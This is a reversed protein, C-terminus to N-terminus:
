YIPPLEQTTIPISSADGGLDRLYTEPNNNVVEAACKNLRLAADDAADAGGIQPTDNPDDYNAFYCAPDLVDNRFGLTGSTRKWLIRRAIVAGNIQLQTANCSGVELSSPWEGPFGTTSCTDLIGTSDPNSSDPFAVLTADVSQVPQEIYVNGKHAILMLSPIAGVTYNQEYAISGTITIDSNQAVLTKRQGQNVITSGLRVDTSVIGIGEGPQSLFSDVDAQSALLQPSSDNTQSQTIQTQLDVCPLPPNPLSSYFRGYESVSYNAFLADKISDQNGSVGRAYGYNGRFTNVGTAKAGIDGSAFVAYQAASSGNLANLVYEGHYGNTIIAANKAEQSAECTGTDSFAAGSYVDGGTVAIYPLNERYKIEFGCTDLQGESQHNLRWDFNIDAPSSPATFVAPAEFTQENNSPSGVGLIVAGYPPTVYGPITVESAGLGNGIPQLAVRNNNPASGVPWANYAINKVNFRVRFTDGPTFRASGPPVFAGGNISVGDISCEGAWSRVVNLNIELPSNKTNCVRRGASNKGQLNAPEVQSNYVCILQNSPPFENVMTDVVNVRIKYSGVPLSGLGGVNFAKHLPLDGPLNNVNPKVFRTKYFYSSNYDLLLPTTGTNLGSTSVPSRNDIQYTAGTINIATKGIHSARSFDFNGNRDVIYECNAAAANYWLPVSNTGQVISVVNDSRPDGAKSLWSYQGQVRLPNNACERGPGTVWRNNTMDQGARTLDDIFTQSINSNNNTIAAVDIPAIGVVLTLVFVLLLARRCFTRIM